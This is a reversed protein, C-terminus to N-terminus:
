INAVGADYWESIPHSVVSGKDKVDQKLGQNAHAGNSNDSWGALVQVAPQWSTTSGMYHTEFVIYNLMTEDFTEVLCV